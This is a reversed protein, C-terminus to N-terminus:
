RDLSAKQLTGYRIEDETFVAMGNFRLRSDEYTGNSARMWIVGLGPVRLCWVFDPAHSANLPDRDRAEIVMGSTSPTMEPHVLDKREAHKRRIKGLDSEDAAM